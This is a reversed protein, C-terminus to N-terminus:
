RLLSLQQHSVIDVEDYASPPAVGDKAANESIHVHKAKKDTVIKIDTETKTSLQSQAKLGDGRGLSPTAIRANVQSNSLDVLARRPKKQQSKSIVSIKHPTEHSNSAFDQADITQGLFGSTSPHLAKKSSKHSTYVSSNEDHIKFPTSSSLM